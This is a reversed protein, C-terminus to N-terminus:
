TEKREVQKYITFYFTGLEPITSKLVDLNSGSVEVKIEGYKKAIRHLWSVDRCEIFSGGSINLFKVRNSALDKTKDYLKKIYDSTLVVEYKGKVYSELLFYFADKHEQKDVSQTFNSLYVTTSDILKEKKRSSHAVYELYLSHDTTSGDQLSDSIFPVTAALELNGLLDYINKIDYLTFTYLVNSESAFDIQQTLTIVRTIDENSIIIFAKSDIIEIVISHCDFPMTAIANLISPFCELTICNFDDSSLGVPVSNFCDIVAQENDEIPVSTLIEVTNVSIDYSNIRKTINFTTTEAEKFSISVLTELLADDLKVLVRNTTHFVIDLKSSICFSARFVEQLDKDKDTKSVVLLYLSRQGLDRSAYLYLDYARLNKLNRFLRVLTIISFSVDM